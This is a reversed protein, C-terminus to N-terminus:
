PQLKRNMEAVVANDPHEVALHEIRRRAQDLRGSQIEVLALNVGAEIDDPSASVVQQLLGEAERYHRQKLLYYAKLKIVFPHDRGKARSLEDLLTEVRAADLPVRTLAAQTQRVVQGTRANQSLTNLRNQESRRDSPTSMPEPQPKKSVPRPKIAPKLGNHAVAPLAPQPSPGAIMGASEDTASSLPEPTFYRAQLPANEKGQGDTRTAPPLATRESAPSTNTVAAAIPHYTDAALEKKGDIYAVGIVACLGLLIFGAALIWIRIMRKAFSIGEAAGRLDQWSTALPLQGPIGDLRRADLKQLSKFILSM